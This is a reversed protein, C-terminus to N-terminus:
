NDETPSVGLREALIKALLELLLPQDTMTQLRDRFLRMTTSPMDGRQARTMVERLEVTALHQSLADGTSLLDAVIWFREADLNAGLDPQEVSDFSAVRDLTAQLEDGSIAEHRPNVDAEVVGSLNDFVTMHELFFRMTSDTLAAELMPDELDFTGNPLSSTEVFGPRSRDVREALRKRLQEVYTTISEQDGRVHGM